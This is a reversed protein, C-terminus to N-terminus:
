ALAERFAGDARRRMPNSIVPHHAQAITEM